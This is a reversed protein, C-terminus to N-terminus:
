ISFSTGCGCSSTANPNNIQFYAGMLDEVFDVEAGGLLELSVEDVVVRAGDREFVRDDDNVQDDFDFGYQFGSCGGGSVSVRLMQAGTGQQTVLFAIRRAASASVLVEAPSATESPSDSALTM